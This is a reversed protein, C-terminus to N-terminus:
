PIVRIYSISASPAPSSTAAKLVILSASLQSDSRWRTGRMLRRGEAEYSQADRRQPGVGRRGLMAQEAGLPNGKPVSPPEGSPAAAHALSCHRRGELTRTGTGM